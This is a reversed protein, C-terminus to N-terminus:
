RNVPPDLSGRERRRAAMWQRWKYDAIFSGAVVAAAVILLLIKM